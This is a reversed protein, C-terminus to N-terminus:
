LTKTPANTQMKQHEGFLVVVIILHHAAAAVSSFTM